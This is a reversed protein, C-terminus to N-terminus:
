SEVLVRGGKPHIHWQKSRDITAHLRYRRKMDALIDELGNFLHQGSEDRWGLFISGQHQYIWAATGVDHKVFTLQDESMWAPSGNDRDLYLKINRAVGLAVDM